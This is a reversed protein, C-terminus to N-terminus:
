NISSPVSLSSINSSNQAPTEVKKEEEEEEYFSFIDLDENDESPTEMKTKQEQPHNEDLLSVSADYDDEEVNSDDQFNFKQKESSINKSNNNNDDEKQNQESEPKIDDKSQELIDNEDFSFDSAMNKQQPIISDDNTEHTEATKPQEVSKTFDEEENTQKQNIEEVDEEEELTETNTDPLSLHDSANSFHITFSNQTQGNNLQQNDSFYEYDYQENQPQNQPTEDDELSPVPIDDGSFTTPYSRRHSNSETSQSAGVGSQALVPQQDLNDDYSESSLKPRIDFSSTQANERSSNASSKKPTELVSRSNASTPSPIPSETNKSPISQITIHKTQSLEEIKYAWKKAFRESPSENNKALEIPYIKPFLNQNRSPSKIPSVKMPSKAPSSSQIKDLKKMAKKYCSELSTRLFDIESMKTQYDSKVEEITKLPSSGRSYFSM